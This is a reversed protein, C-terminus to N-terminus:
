SNLKFPFITHQSKIIIQVCVCWVSFCKRIVVCSECMGGIIRVESSLLVHSDHTTILFHKKTWIPNEKKM